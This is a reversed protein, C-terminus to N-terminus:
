DIVIIEIEQKMRKAATPQHIIHVEGARQGISTSEDTREQRRLEFPPNINVTARQEELLSERLKELGKVETKKAILEELLHDHHSKEKLIECHSFKGNKCRTKAKVRFGYLPGNANLERCFCQSDKTSTLKFYSMCEADSRLFAEVQPHGHVVAKPQKWSFQPAGSSNLKDIWHSLIAVISNLASPSDLLAKRIDERSALIVFLNSEDLPFSDCIQFRFNDWCISDNLWLLCNLIKIAREVESKVVPLFNLSFFRRCADRYWIYIRPIKNLSPYENREWMFFLNVVLDMLQSISLKALLPQFVKAVGCQEDASFRNKETLLFLQVCEFLVPMINTSVSTSDLKRIVDNIGNTIIHDCTNLILSKKKATLKGWVDCLMLNKFLTHKEHLPWYGTIENACVQDLLSRILSEDETQIFCKIVDLIDERRPMVTLNKEMKSSLVSSVHRIIVSSIFHQATTFQQFIDILFRFFQHVSLKTLVLSIVSLHFSEISYNMREMRMFFVISSSFSKLLTERRYIDADPIAPITNGSEILTSSHDVLLILYYKVFSTLASRISESSETLEWLESASILTAILDMKVANFIGPIEPPEPVRCIRSILSELWKVNGLQIFCQLLDVAICRVPPVYIKCDTSLIRCM